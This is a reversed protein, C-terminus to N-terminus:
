GYRGAPRYPLISYHNTFISYLLIIRLEFFMEICNKENCKSFGSSAVNTMQFKPKPIKKNNTLKDNPIERKPTVSGALAPCVSSLFFRKKLCLGFVFVQCM